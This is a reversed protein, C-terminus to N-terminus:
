AAAQMLAKAYSIDDADFEEERYVEGAEEYDTPMVMIPRYEEPMGNIAGLTNYDLYETATEEYEEFDRVTKGAEIDTDMYSQALTSTLLDYDYIVHNHDTSVGIIGKSFTEFDDLLIAKDSIGFKKKFEDKTMAM